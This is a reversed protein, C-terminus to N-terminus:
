EKDDKEEKKKVEESDFSLAIFDGEDLKFRDITDKPITVVYSNGVKRLKADFKRKM